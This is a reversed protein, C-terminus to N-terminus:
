MAHVHVVPSRGVERVSPLDLLPTYDEEEGEALVGEKSAFGLTIPSSTAPQGMELLLHSLRDQLENMNNLDNIPVKFIFPNTSSPSHYFVKLKPQYNYSPHSAIRSAPAAPRPVKATSRGGNSFDENEDSSASEKNYETLDAQKILEPLDELSVVDDKIFTGSSKACILGATRLFKKALTPERDFWRRVHPGRNNALQFKTPLQRVQFFPIGQRSAIMKAEEVLDLALKRALDWGDTWPRKVLQRLASVRGKVPPSNDDYELIERAKKTEKQVYHKEEYLPVEALPRKPVRKRRHYCATCEVEEALNIVSCEQCMWGSPDPVEVGGDSSGLKNNPTSKLLEQQFKEYTVRQQEMKKIPDICIECQCKGMCGPCMWYLGKFVGGYMDPYKKSLCKFCFAERCFVGQTPNSCRAVTWSCQPARCEHCIDQMETLVCSELVSSRRTSRRKLEL